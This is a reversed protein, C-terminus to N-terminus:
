GQMVNNPAYFASDPQKYHTKIHMVKEKGNLQIHTTINGDGKAIGIIPLSIINVGKRLGTTWSIQKKNGFGDLELNASLDVRLEVGKLAKEADIAVRVTHVNNNVAIFNEANSHDKSPYFVSLAIVMIAFMAAVALKYGHHVTNNEQEAHKIAQRLLGQEAKPALAKYPLTQLAAQQATLLELHRACSECGTIHRQLAATQDASLDDDIYDNIVTQVKDCNM